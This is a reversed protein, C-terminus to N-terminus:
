AFLSVGVCFGMCQLWARVCHCTVCVARCYHQRHADQVDLLSVTVRTSAHCCARLARDVSFAFMFEREQQGGDEQVKDLNAVVESSHEDFAGGADFLLEDGAQLTVDGFKGQLSEGARRISVIAADFRSRFHANRCCLRMDSAFRM